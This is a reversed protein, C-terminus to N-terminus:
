CLFQLDMIVKMTCKGDEEEDEQSFFTFPANDDDAKVNSSGSGFADKLSTSVEYFKDKSVEPPPQEERQM